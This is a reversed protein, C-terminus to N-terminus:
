ARRFRGRALLLRVTSRDLLGALGLHIGAAVVAVGIAVVLNIVVGPRHVQAALAAGVVAAVLGPGVAALVARRLGALASAGASRVVAVVLWLGSVSVGASTGIGIAAVTWGRGLTFALVIDVGIAVLWGVVAASAPTRADGQAYLARSLLAVLAYGLLGPAFCILGRSLVAPDVHGPAGLVVVRALPSATAVMLAATGAIALLMVRATRALMADYRDRDGAQWAATLAPFSSTALPVAVVAWPVTFVTWALNYIV